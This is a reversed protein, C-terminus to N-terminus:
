KLRAKLSKIFGEADKRVETESYNNIIKQYLNLAEDFEYNSELKIAKKLLSYAYEENKPAFDDSELENRSLDPDTTFIFHFPNFKETLKLLGMYQDSSKVGWQTMINKDLKDKNGLYFHPLIHNYNLKYIIWLLSYLM